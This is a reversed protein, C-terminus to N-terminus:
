ENRLVIWLAKDGTVTDGSNIITIARANKYHGRLVTTKSTLQVPSVVISDTPFLGSVAVDKTTVGSLLDVFGRAIVRM